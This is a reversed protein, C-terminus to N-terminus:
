NKDVFNGKIDVDRADFPNLVADVILAYEGRTITDNFDRPAIGYDSLIKNGDVDSKAAAAIFAIADANTLPTSM